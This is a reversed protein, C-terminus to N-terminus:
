SRSPPGGSSFWGLQGIAMFLAAAVLAVGMGIQIPRRPLRSVIGAGIWGGVVSAAVMWLLLAPDVAIVAIFILAQATAPLAHGVIMTGPIREDPVLRLMRFATTTTAFSGIGLTDFFNTVSGVALQVPRPWRFEHSDGGRGNVSGIAGIWRMVFVGSMGTFVLLLISQANPAM